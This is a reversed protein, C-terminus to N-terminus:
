VAMRLVLACDSPGDDSRVDEADFADLILPWFIDPRRLARGIHALRIPTGGKGSTIDSLTAGLQARVEDTLEPPRDRRSKEDIGIPGPSLINKIVFCMYERIANKM